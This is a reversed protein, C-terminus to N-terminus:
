CFGSHNGERAMVAGNFEVRPYWANRQMLLSDPEQGAAQWISDCYKAPGAGALSQWVSHGPVNGTGSSESYVGRLICGQAYRCFCCLNQGATALGWGRKIRVSLDRVQDGDM